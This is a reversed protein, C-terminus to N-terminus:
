RVVTIAIDLDLGAWTRDATVAPLDLVTALALCARDGLSLGLQRTEMRLLGATEAQVQDFPVVELDLQAVGDATMEASAGRETLKAVVEALNVASICAEALWQEADTAAVEGFITALVVSADLVRSAAPM